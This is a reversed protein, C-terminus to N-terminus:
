PRLLHERLTTLDKAAAERVTAENEPKGAAWASVTAVSILILTLTFKWGM